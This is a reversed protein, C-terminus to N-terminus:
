DPRIPIRYNNFATANSTGLSMNSAAIIGGGLIIGINSLIGTLFLGLTTGILIIIGLATGVFKISKPATATVQNVDYPHVSGCSTCRHNFKEGGRDALDRRTIIGKSSITNEARCSKCTLKLQM